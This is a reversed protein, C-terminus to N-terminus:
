YFLKQKQMNLPAIGVRGGVVDCVDNFPKMIKMERVFRYNKRYYRNSTPYDATTLQQHYFSVRSCPSRSLSLLAVIRIVLLGDIYPKKNYNVSVDYANLNRITHDFIYRRLNHM